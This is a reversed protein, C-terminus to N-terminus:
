FRDSIFFYKFVSFDVLVSKNFDRIFYFLIFQCTFLLLLIFLLIKSIILNIDCVILVIMGRPKPYFSIRDITLRQRWFLNKFINIRFIMILCNSLFSHRIQLASHQRNMRTFMRINHFPKYILWFCFSFRDFRIM